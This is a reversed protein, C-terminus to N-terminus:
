SPIEKKLELKLLLQKWTIQDPLSSFSFHVKDLWAAAPESLEGRKQQWFFLWSPFQLQIDPSLQLDMLVSM